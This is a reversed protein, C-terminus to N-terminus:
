KQLSKQKLLALETLREDRWNRRQDLQELPFANNMENVILEATKGRMKPVPGFNMSVHYIGQAYKEFYEKMGNANLHATEWPGMFAYRMGLGHAMVKDVDSVSIIGNEILRYCENLIAYQIRNVIFGSVEKQLVVPKQGIKEFLERTQKVVAISTWPSPVIEVLPVFYPPNVPHGVLM